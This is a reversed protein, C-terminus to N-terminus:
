LEDHEREELHGVWLDAKELIEEKTLTGDNNSDSNHIMHDAEEEAMRRLPAVFWATLEEGDLFGNKNSDFQDFRERGRRDADDVKAALEDFSIKGDNDKDHDALESEMKIQRTLDYEEPSHFMRYEELSLHKDKDKDAVFFLKRERNAFKKTEDDATELESPTMLYRQQVFEDWTVKGDVDTDQEKFTTNMYGQEMNQFNKEFYDTLEAKNIKGDKNTDMDPILKELEERATDEDMQEFEDSRSGLVADHDFNPDHDVYQIHDEFSIKGLAFSFGSGFLGICLLLAGFIVKNSM